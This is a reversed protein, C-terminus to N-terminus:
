SLGKASLKKCFRKVDEGMRDEFKIEDLSFWRAGHCERKDFFIEERYPMEFIFWLSVDVHPQCLGRTPTVTVFAPARSSPAIDLEMEEKLERQACNAPHEGPDVHGGPPLWTQAKVHDILLVKKTTPDWVFSYSVLHKNPTAPKEIRFLPAGSEIWALADQRDSREQPDHTVLEQIARYITKEM